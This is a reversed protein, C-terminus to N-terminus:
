CVACDSMDRYAMAKMHNFALQRTEFPGHWKGNRGSDKPQWGRGYNCYRCNGQHIRARQRTWNEYDWYEM